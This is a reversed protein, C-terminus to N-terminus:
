GRLIIRVPNYSSQSFQITNLDVHEITYLNQDAVRYKAEPFPDYIFPDFEDFDGVPDVELVQVEPIVQFNHSITYSIEVTDISLYNNVIAQSRSLEAIADELNRATLNSTTLRDFYIQSAVPTVEFLKNAM